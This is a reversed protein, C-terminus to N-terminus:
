KEEPLEGSDAFKQIATINGSSGIRRSVDEITKMFDARSKYGTSGGARALLKAATSYMGLNVLDKVIGFAGAAPQGSAASTVAKGAGAVLQEEASGRVTAGAQGAAQRYELLMKYGPLFDDVIRRFLNDGLITRYRDAVEPKSLEGIIDTRAGRGGSATTEILLREIESARLSQLGARAQPNSAALKELKSVLSGVDALNPLDAIATSAVSIGIPNNPDLLAALKEPGPKEKLKATFAVFKDLQDKSGFGLKKLAGPSQREVNNLTEALKVFDIDGTNINVSPEILSSRVATAVDSSAPVNKAGRKGLDDLLSVLNDYAPAEIGQRQVESAMTAAMQGTRQTEPKFAQAVGYEDFRQRFERYFKNAEKLQKAIKAGQAANNAAAGFVTSAQGDISQTIKGALDRIDRQAKTGFAEGAHDAYNYLKERVQRLQNLSLPNASDRLAQIDSALSAFAPNVGGSRLQPYETLIRAAEQTVSPGTGIRLALDFGEINEFPQVPAYLDDAKAKFASKADEVVSEIKRGAKVIRFAGPQAGKFLTNQISQEFAQTADQVARAATQEQVTGRVKELIASANSLNASANAVAQAEEAGLDELLRRTLKDAGQPELGTLSRVTASINEGQQELARRLDQQGARSSVRTELAAMSPMVQGLTPTVGIKELPVAREAARGALAGLGRAVGGASETVASIAGPIVGGSLVNEGETRIAEAAMGGGTQMAVNGIGRLIGAGRTVPVSGQVGSAVVERGSMEQRSGGVRELVQSVTEGIIAGLGSIGAAAVPGMGGSALGAVIPGAYRPISELGQELRQKAEPSAVAPPPQVEQGGEIAPNVYQSVPQQAEPPQQSQKVFNLLPDAIGASRNVAQMLQSDAQQVPNTQATETQASTESQARLAALVQDETPQSDATLVVRKRTGNDNVTVAFRPM